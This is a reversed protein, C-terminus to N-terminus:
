LESIDKVHQEYVKEQMLSWIDYDVPNLDLSNPPWLTPPIFDLAEKMLTEVTDHARHASRLLTIKIDANFTLHM